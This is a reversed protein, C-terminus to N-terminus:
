RRIAELLLRASEGLESGALGEALISARVYQGLKYHAFALRYRTQADDVSANALASELAVLRAMHGASFLIAVRQRLGRSSESVQANYRLAARSDGASWFQDAAEFAYDGGLAVAKEFLRAAAQPHAASAYAFALHATLEADAPFRAALEEIEAIVGFERYVTDIMALVEDRTLSDRSLAVKLWRRLEGRLQLRHAFSLLEIIPANSNAFDRRATLLVAFAEDERGLAVLAKARVLPVAVVDELKDALRLFPLAEEARDTTVYVHALYLAVTADDPMERHAREFLTAAEHFFGRELAILGRLRSVTGVDGNLDSVAAEAQRIRGTRVWEEIEAPTVALLALVIAVTGSM